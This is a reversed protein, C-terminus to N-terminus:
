SVIEEGIVVAGIKVSDNLISHVDCLKFVLYLVKLGFLRDQYPCARPNDFFSRLSERMLKVM